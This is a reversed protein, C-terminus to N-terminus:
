VGGGSFVELRLPFKEIKRGRVMLPIIPTFQNILSTFNKSQRYSLLVVDHSKHNKIFPIVFVGYDVGHLSDQRRTDSYM